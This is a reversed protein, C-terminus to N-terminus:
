PNTVDRTDPRLALSGRPADIRGIDLSLRANSTSARFLVGIVSNPVNRRSILDHCELPRLTSPFSPRGFNGEKCRAPALERSARSRQGTEGSLDRGSPGTGVTGTFTDTVGNFHLWSPLAAGNSQTAWTM